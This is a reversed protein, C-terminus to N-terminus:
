AVLGCVFMTSCPRGAVSYRRGSCASLSLPPFDDLSVLVIQKWLEVGPAFLGYKDTTGPVVFEIWPERNDIMLKDDFFGQLYALIPSDAPTVVTTTTTTVM